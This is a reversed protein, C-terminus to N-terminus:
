RGSSGLTEFLALLQDIMTEFRFAHTARALAGAVLRAHTVPDLAEGIAVTLDEVDGPRFGLGTEGPTLWEPIGGHWAGVVPRGRRMAEVGVMGFPEPWRSPVVVVRARDYFETMKDPAQPGLFALRDRVGLRNALSEVFPRDNGDGAVILSVGPLDPLARVVLDLGKGRIIQGSFAVMREETPPRIATSEPPPVPHVVRVRDPAVGADLLTQRLFASCAVLSARRSLTRIRRALSFPDRVGWGLRRGPTRVLVCGQTVCALGPARNCPTRGIPVYRHSRICTTDHDHVAFAIPTAQPVFDWVKPDDVKHVYVFASERLLSRSSGLPVVEDFAKSYGEPDRGDESAYVLAVSRNRSRLGAALDHVHREVGGHFGLRPAILLIM